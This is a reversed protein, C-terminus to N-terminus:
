DSTGPRKSGERKRERYLAILVVTGILLVSFVGGARMINLAALTYRGKNADYLFCYLLVSDVMNGIKNESAEVLTLRTTSPLYKVGYLYRSVQGEPTLVILAAAHVYEKRDENWRFGFGVSETLAKISPDEGVLFHWGKGAGEQGLEALYNQKKLKAVVATDRPDFSVSLIDYDKGVKLDMEKAVDLTANLVLGCLMPCEFYGLNLVVPRGSKFYDGLKVTKGLENTFELDLPLTQGLKQEITVGVIEDPSREKRSLTGDLTRADKAPDVVLAPPKSLVSRGRDSKVENASESAALLQSCCMAVLLMGCVARVSKRRSM